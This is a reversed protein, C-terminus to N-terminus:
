SSLGARWATALQQTSALPDLQGCIASVVAAASVGTAAVRGINTDNIGGIAVIPKETLAKLSALGEPTLVPAADTKTQTAFVPGVGLYDAVAVDAHQIQDANSASLGIFAKPGMLDRVAQVPLDRQGVHVGDAGCAMAVDVEDDILFPVGAPRTLAMLATALEFLRRKKWGPARLQICAVGGKLAAKTTELCAQEGGCMDPDLVLYIPGLTNHHVTKDNLAKTNLDKANLPATSPSSHSM